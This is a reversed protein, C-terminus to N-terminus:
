AMYTGADGAICMGQSSNRWIKQYAISPWNEPNGVIFLGRPSHMAAFDCRQDRVKGICQLKRWRGFRSAIQASPATGAAIYLRWPLRLPMHRCQIRWRASRRQACRLKSRAARHLAPQRMARAASISVTSGQAHQWRASSLFCIAQLGSQDRSRKPKPAVTSWSISSM